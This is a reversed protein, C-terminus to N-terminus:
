DYSKLKAIIKKVRVLDIIGKILRDFTGYKSQGKLRARHDVEIFFTEYGFGKFLAPLFRHIGDFYPLSLFIKKDFIKLSCGSDSCNDSLILQRVYNAIKSTIIKIFSDKRNVRIGGVLAYKKNPYYFVEYLKSIDSPNNQGDGDITVISDYKSNKIGTLLSFSQGLNKNHNIIKLNNYNNKQNLVELTNDTSCDNVVVIEYMISGTLNENIENLLSIINGGENFVPIIISIENM